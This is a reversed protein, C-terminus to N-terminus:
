LNDEVLFSDIDVQPIDSPYDANKAEIFKGVIKQGLETLQVEPTGEFRELLTLEVAAAITEGEDPHPLYVTRDEWQATNTLTDLTEIIHTYVRDNIGIHGKPDVKEIMMEYLPRIVSKIADIRRINAYHAELGKKKANAACVELSDWHPTASGRDTRM